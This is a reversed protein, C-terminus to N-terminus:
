AIYFSRMMNTSKRQWSRHMIKLTDIKRRPVNFFEAAEETTPNHCKGADEVGAVEGRRRPSTLDTRKGQEKHEEKWQRAIEARQDDTLQRRLVAAKLM